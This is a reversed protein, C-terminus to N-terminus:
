RLLFNYRFITVMAKPLPLLPVRGAEDIATNEYHQSSRGQGCYASGPFEYTKVQFAKKSM